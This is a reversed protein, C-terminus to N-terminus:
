RAVFNCYAVTCTACQLKTAYVLISWDANVANKCCLRVSYLVARNLFHTAHSNFLQKVRLTVNAIKDRSIFNRLLIASTVVARAHFLRGVLTVVAVERAEKLLCNFVNRKM